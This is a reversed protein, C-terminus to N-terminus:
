IKVNKTPKIAHILMWKQCILMSIITNIIKNISFCFEHLGFRFILQVIDNFQTLFKYFQLNDVLIYLIQTFVQGPFFIM